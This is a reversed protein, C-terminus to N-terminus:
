KKNLRKILFIILLISIIVIITNFIYKMEFLTEEVPEDPSVKVREGLTSLDQDEKEIHQKFLEIEYEPKQAQSQGYYLEYVSSGTDEFVIKDIYYDVHIANIKLPPNDQNNIKITISGSSLPHDNFSISKNSIKIDTFDLNYIENLGDTRVIRNEEDYITYSRQFNEKIDLTIQKIRLHQPNSLQILSDNNETKITHEMEMTLQYHEWETETTNHILTLDPIEINEANDLIVIRYYSYKYVQDLQIVSKELQDAKYIHDKDVYEWQNGDYGGYIELHKLFDQKPLSFSLSNGQIDSNEKIPKIRFDLITDNDNNEKEKFEKATFIKESQYIVKNEKRNQYGSQIYYSVSKGENDMIRIDALNPLAHEYVEEDLFFAKYQQNGELQIPKFYDWVQKEENTQEEEAAFGVGNFLFLTM